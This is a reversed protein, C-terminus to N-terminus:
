ESGCVACIGAPVQTEIWRGRPSHSCGALRTAAPRSGAGCKERFVKQQQLYAFSDVDLVAALFRERENALAGQADLGGRVSAAPQELIKRLQVWKEVSGTKEHLKLDAADLM